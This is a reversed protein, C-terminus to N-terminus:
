CALILYIASILYNGLHGHYWIKFSSYILCNCWISFESQKQFYFNSTKFNLLFIRRYKCVWWILLINRSRLDIHPIWAILFLKWVIDNTQFMKHCKSFFIILTWGCFFRKILQIFEYNLFITLEACVEFDFLEWATLSFNEMQFHKDRSVINKTKLKSRQFYRLIIWYKSTLM